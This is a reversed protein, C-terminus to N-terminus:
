LAELGREIADLVFPSQIEPLPGVMGSAIWHALRMSECSDFMLEPGSTAMGHLAARKLAEELTAIRSELEWIRKTAADVHNEARNRTEEIEAMVDSMTRVSV